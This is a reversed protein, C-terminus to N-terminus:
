LVLRCTLSLSFIEEFLLRPVFTHLHLFNEVFNHMAGPFIEAMRTYNNVDRRTISTLQKECEEEARLYFSGMM